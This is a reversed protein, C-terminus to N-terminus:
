TDCQRVPREKWVIAVLRQKTSLPTDLDPPCQITGDPQEIAIVQAGFRRRFDAERLSQGVAQLPVILRQIMDTRLPAVGMVLQQLQAEQEFASLGAHERLVLRQTEDAHHRLTEYVRERTLMGLWRRERDRSVVPLVDHNERRFVNLAQYLDEDPFVAALDETMMDEAILADAMGPQDFARQIDPVSIMGVIRRDRIVAFVPRTGYRIRVMLDVLSMEPTAILPWDREMLDEVREAELAHVIADAAHAPSEAASRVQEANLGHRRGVVYASACVLMLPVILGYSGTMETTMVIAAMPTRMAAALVGAMGVPILSQRLEPPFADPYLATCLAGVFAGAAGGIFVSPGLLWGSAGSGVTFATAVCKFVAVSGFLAAWWWWDVAPAQTFLAGSLANQIFRYQGDMVQPLLCALAGTALGGLGPALWRPIRAGAAGREVGRVCVSFFIGLLGCLLGLAAYPILEIPSGFALQDVGALLRHGFEYWVTYTCYGFVSAVFAPVIAEAEFEPERYLVSAAFLAGGLPCQFIAGIGAACGAVLLIRRERPTLGFIRGVSSGLAAGLAAIPGEPGASGGCSIVGIAAAAKVFPGRVPLDGLNRHFARTLVDTGHGLARPCLWRVVLGSALGGVAPLLLVGWHFSRVAAGGLHTFRGVLLESGNALGWHLAAAALGGAMGM